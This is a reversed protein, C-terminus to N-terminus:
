NQDFVTGSKKVNEQVPLDSLILSQPGMGRQANNSGVSAVAMSSM